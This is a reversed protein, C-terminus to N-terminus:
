PAATRGTDEICSGAGAAERVTRKEAEAASEARFTLGGIGAPQRQSEGAGDFAMSRSGGSFADGCAGAAAKTNGRGTWRVTSENGSVCRKKEEAANRAKEASSKAQKLQAETPAKEPKQAPSPHTLSGCVPCPKGAELTEAMIGAQADLFARNRAEYAENDQKAAEAAQLYEAQLTKLANRLNRFNKLSSALEKLKTQRDKESDRQREMRERGEGANELSAYEKQLLSLEAQSQTNKQQDSELKKEGAEIEAAAERIQQELAALATYRPYEAEIKAKEESLMEKEPLKAAAEGFATKLKQNKESEEAIGQRAKDLAQKTKERAELIGLNMNIKALEQEAEGIDRQVATLAEGDKELLGRILTVAESM